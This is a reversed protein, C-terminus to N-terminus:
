SEIITVEDGIIEGVTASNHLKLEVPHEFILDGHVQVNEGIEVKVPKRRKNSNWGHPKQVVVNGVVETGKLLRIGGNVTSIDGAVSTNQLRISGNVTEVGGDVECGPELTVSGNVAEIGREVSVNNGLNISGNVSEVSKVVSNAGIRISGNVSDVNGTTSNDDVRISKNVTSVGGGATAVAPFVVMFAFAVAILYRSSVKMSREQQKKTGPGDPKGPLCHVTSKAAM